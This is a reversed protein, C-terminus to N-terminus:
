LTTLLTNKTRKRVAFFSLSLLGVIFFIGGKGSDITIIACSKAIKEWGAYLTIDETVPKTEDFKKICEKETFWGLFNHGRLQPSEPLIVFEGFDIKNVILSTNNQSDFTIRVEKIWKSKLTTDGLIELPFTVGVGNSEWGIFRYGAKIPKNPENIFSGINGSVDEMVNGGDTDFMIKGSESEYFSLNLNSLEISQSGSFMAIKGKSKTLIDNYYTFINQGNVGVIIHNSVVSTYLNFKENVDFGDILDSIYTAGSMEGRSESYIFIRDRRTGNIKNRSVGVFYGNKAAMVSKTDDYYIHFGSFGDKDSALFKLDASLSFNTLDTNYSYSNNWDDSQVSQTLVNNQVKWDGGNATWDNANFEGVEKIKNKQNTIDIIFEGRTGSGDRAIAIAKVRGNAYPTVVGSKSIYAKLTPSGNEDTIFWDVMNNKSTLPNITYNLSLTEGSVSINNSEATVKIEYISLDKFYVETQNIFVNDIRGSMNSTGLQDAGIRLSSDVNTLTVNTVVQALTGDIFISICKSGSDYAMALNAWQNLPLGCNLNVLNGKFMLRLKGSPQVDLMFGNYDATNALKKDFLRFYQGFSDLFFDASINFSKSTDFNKAGAISGFSGNMGDLTLCKDTGDKDKISAGGFLEVDFDTDSGDFDYVFINNYSTEIITKGDLTKGGIKVSVFIESTGEQYVTIYGGENIKINDNSVRYDAAYTLNYISGKDTIGSVTIRAGGAGRISKNDNDIVIREISDPINVTVNQTVNFIKEGWYFSIHIKVKGANNGIFYYRGDSIQVSAIEDNASRITLPAGNLNISSEDTMVGSVLIESKEGIEIVSKSNTEVSTLQNDESYSEDISYLMINDMAGGFNWWTIGNNGYDGGIRLPVSSNKLAVSLAVDFVVEGDMTVIAKKSSSNYSFVLKSWENIKVKITGQYLNGALGGILRIYDGDIIDLLFGNDGSSCDLIRMSSGSSGAMHHGTWDIFIDASFVINESLDLLDNKNMQLYKDNNFKFANGGNHQVFEPAKEMNPSQETEAVGDASYSTFLTKGLNDVINNGSVSEFGTDVYIDKKVAICPKYLSKVGEIGESNVSSVAYLYAGSQTIFTDEFKTEVCTAIKKESGGNEKRYINYSIADKVSNWKLTAAINQSNIEKEATLSSPADAGRSPIDMVYYKEGSSVNFTISNEGRDFTVNEGKSNLVKVGAANINNYHLTIFDRASSLQEVKLFDLKGSATQNLSIATGLAVNLKANLEWSSPFAPLVYVDKGFDQVIMEQANSMGVSQSEFNPTWDFAEILKFGSFRLPQLTHKGGNQDGTEIPKDDQMRDVLYQAAIDSYGLRAATIGTQQWDANGKRTLPNNMDGAIIDFTNRAIFINDDGINFHGYPWLPALEPLEFNDPPNFKDAPRIVKKGEAYDYKIEPIHKKMEEFYEKDIEPYVSDLGTLADCLQNLAVIVDVPNVAEKFTEMCRSPSIVIKGNSDFESGTNKLNERTYHEYYFLTSSQIFDLYESIDQGSYQYYKLIQISFELQNNYQDNVSAQVTGPELSPPRSWGYINGPPVGYPTLHECYAAGNHGFYEKTAIKNNNLGNNYYDFQSTMIEYDGSKLMPWTLCRQNQATMNGGGWFRFDPTGITKADQFYGTGSFEPDFSFPGGNFKSPFRSFAYCGAEYRTYAYNKGVQWMPDSRDHNTSNIYVGSRQWFERWWSVTNERANTDANEKKKVNELGALFSEASPVNDMFTYIKVNCETQPAKSVLSWATFETSAYKGSTTDHLLELGSGEIKGGFTYDKLPDNLDDLHGSLGQQEMLDGFVGVDSRNRHYFTLANDSRIFNDKFVYKNHWDYYEGEYHPLKIKNDETRWNEYIVSFETPVTTSLNVNVTRNFIDVWVDISAENYNNKGKFNVFSEKIKFEQSFQGNKFPNPSMKIRVRGLKDLTLNEDISDTCGIYFLIEDKEAWVNLALNGGGVPMSGSVNESMSTWKENYSDLAQEWKNNKVEINEIIGQGRVTSLGLIGTLM